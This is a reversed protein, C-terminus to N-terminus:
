EGQPIKSRNELRIYQSYFAATDGMDTITPEIIPNPSQGFKMWGGRRFLVVNPYLSDNIEVQVQLSGAPSVAYIEESLDLRELASSKSSISVVPIGRQEAESIQSQMYKGNVLTLLNLPYDTTPEPDRDLTEPFRFKKDPHDFRMSEYAVMPWHSRSFGQSSLEEPGVGSNELSKTICQSRSPLYIPHELREGLDALVDYIDRCQNPPEVAKRSFNIFNHTSAGVIEDREFMYAPPLILDACLATDNMFGDVVVTFPCRKLGAAVGTSDPIQNAPNLGDVWIFELTPDAERLERSLDPALMTRRNKPAPLETELQLSTLNRGSSFSYYVGGGRRGMQGALMGLSAIFRVNQGGYLYRQLGWGLLTAVPGPQEYWDFLMEAEQVSVGCAACLNELSWSEVLGRFVPWNSTRSIVAQELLGSELYLKIVAAALFRDTGPKILIHEDSNKKETDAIDITLLQTGRKRAENVTIGTHMFSSKMNRGWNVIRRANLLDETDNAALSGCCRIMAECGAADCISGRLKTSGLAAFFAKRIAAFVGRYGYGGFYGIREPTQRLADIKQACLNLATDWDIPDFSDGKRLLPTTIREDADLRKFFRSVKGCVVGRTYPHEPNGSVKRKETDVICSCGDPCDLTCASIVKM